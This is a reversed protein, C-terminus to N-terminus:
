YVTVRCVCEKFLLTVHEPRGGCCRRCPSRLQCKMSQEGRPVPCVFLFFVLRLTRSLLQEFLWSPGMTVSNNRELSFRFFSATNSAVERRQEPSLVSLDQHSSSRTGVWSTLAGSQVAPRPSLWEPEAPCGARLSMDPQCPAWLAHSARAPCGHPSGVPEAEPQQGCYCSHTQVLSSLAGAGSSAKCLLALRGSTPPM